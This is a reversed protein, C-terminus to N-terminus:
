RASRCLLQQVKLLDEYRQYLRGKLYSLQYKLIETATKDSLRRRRLMKEKLRRGISQELIFFEARYESQHILNISEDYREFDVQLAEALDM